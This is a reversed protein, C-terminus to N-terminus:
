VSPVSTEQLLLRRVRQSMTKSIEILVKIGINKNKTLLSSLEAHFLAVTLTREMAVATVARPAEDFLSLEGLMEGPGFELVARELLKCSSEARIRGSVILFIGHGTDGEEFIIEDKEYTREHLLEDVELIEKRTLEHFVPINKLMETRQSTADSGFLKVYDHRPSFPLASVDRLRLNHFYARVCTTRTIRQPM